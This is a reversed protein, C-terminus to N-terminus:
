SRKPSVFGDGGRLDRDSYEEISEYRVPVPSRSGAGVYVSRTSIYYVYYLGYIVQELDSEKEVVIEKEGLLSEIGSIISSATYDRALLYRTRTRYRGASPRLSLRSSM